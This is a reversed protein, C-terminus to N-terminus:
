CSHLRGWKSTHESMATARGVHQLVLPGIEICACELLRAAVPRAVAVCVQDPPQTPGACRTVWPDSFGNHKPSPPKGGGQLAAEGEFLVGATCNWVCTM